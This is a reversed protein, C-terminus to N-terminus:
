TSFKPYHSEFFLHMGEFHINRTGYGKYMELQYNLASIKEKVITFEKRVKAIDEKVFRVKQFQEM